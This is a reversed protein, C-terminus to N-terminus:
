IGGGGPIFSIDIGRDKLEKLKQESCRQCLFIPASDSRDYNNAKVLRWTGAKRGCRHCQGVDQYHWLEIAKNTFIFRDVWFFISGGILNAIVTAYIGAGM